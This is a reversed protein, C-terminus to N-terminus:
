SPRFIFNFCTEIENIMFCNKGSIFARFPPAYLIGVHHDNASPASSKSDILFFFLLCFFTKNNDFSIKRQSIYDDDEEYLRVCRQTLYDQSRIYNQQETRRKKWEATHRLLTINLSLDAKAVEAWPYDNEVGDSRTYEANALCRTLISPIKLTIRETYKQNILNDFELLIGDSLQINTASNLSVLCVDIEQVSVKAFTVDPLSASRLEPPVANDEDILNYAFSQGFCALGLLFSPKVEGTIRGIDLEYHCLYTSSM